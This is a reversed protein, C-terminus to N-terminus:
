THKKVTKLNEKRFMEERRFKLANDTGDTTKLYLINM